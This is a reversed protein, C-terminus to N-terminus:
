IGVNRHCGGGDDPFAYSKLQFVATIFCQKDQLSERFIITAAAMSVDSYLIIKNFSKFDNFTHHM